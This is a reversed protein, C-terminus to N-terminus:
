DYASDRELEFDGAAEPQFRKLKFAALVCDIDLLRHVVFEPTGQKVRM